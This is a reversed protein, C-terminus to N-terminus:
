RIGYPRQSWQSLTIDIISPHLTRPRGFVIRHLGDLLSSAAWTVAVLAGLLLFADVPVKLLILPSVDKWAPWVAVAIWAEVYALPLILLPNFLHIIGIARGHRWLIKPFPAAPMESPLDEAEIRLVIRDREIARNSGVLVSLMEGRNLVSFDILVSHGEESMCASYDRDSELPCVQLHYDHPFSVAVPSLPRLSQYGSNFLSIIAAHSHPHNPSLLQRFGELRNPFVDPLWRDGALRSTEDLPDILFDLSRRAFYVISVVGVVGWFVSLAITLQDGTPPFWGAFETFVFLRSM